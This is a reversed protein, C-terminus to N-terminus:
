RVGRRKFSYGGGLVCDKPYAPVYYLTVGKQAEAAQALLSGFDQQISAANLGSIAFDQQAHASQKFMNSQQMTAISHKVDSDQSQAAKSLTAGFDAWANFGTVSLFFIIFPLFIYNM